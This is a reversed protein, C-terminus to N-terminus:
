YSIILCTCIDDLSWLVHLIALVHVHINDLKILYGTLYIALTDNITYDFIM